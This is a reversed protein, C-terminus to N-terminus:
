NMILVFLQKQWGVVRIISSENMKLEHASKCILM